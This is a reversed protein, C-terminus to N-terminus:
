AKREGPQQQFAPEGKCGPADTRQSQQEDAPDAAAPEPFLEEGAQQLAAPVEGKGMGQQLAEGAGGGADRPIGADIQGQAAQRPGNGAERGEQQLDVPHQQDEEDAGAEVM